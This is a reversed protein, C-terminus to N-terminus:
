HYSLKKNLKQREKETALVNEQEIILENPEKRSFSM